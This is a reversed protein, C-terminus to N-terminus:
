LLSVCLVDLLLAPHLSSRPMLSLELELRGAPSFAPSGTRRVLGIVMVWDDYSLKVRVMRRSTFRLGVAIYAVALMIALSVVIEPGKNENKHKEQYQLSQPSQIAMVSSAGTIWDVSLGYLIFINRYFNTASPLKRSFLILMYHSSNCEQSILTRRLRLCKRCM